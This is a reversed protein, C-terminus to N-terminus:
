LGQERAMMAAWTLWLARAQQRQVGYPISQFQMADSCDLGMNELGRKIDEPLSYKCGAQGDHVVMKIANCSFASTRDVEEDGTRNLYELATDLIESIKMGQNM